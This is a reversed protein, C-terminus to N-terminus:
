ALSVAALIYELLFYNNPVNAIEVCINMIKSEFMYYTCALLFIRIELVM